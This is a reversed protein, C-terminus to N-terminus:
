VSKLGNAIGEIVSEPNKSKAIASAAAVGIAGLKKAIAADEGTAVGAGCIIGVNPNVSKVMKVTRSIIDPKTKSISASTGILEPSEILIYDPNLKAITAATESSDACCITTLNNKRARTICRSIDELDLKKESHNILAGIAGASKASEATMRGTHAGPEVPDISQAILPIIGSLLRLDAHNPAVVINVGSRNAVRRAAEALNKGNEGLTESYLKLNILFM